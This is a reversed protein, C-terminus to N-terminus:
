CRSYSAAATSLRIVNSSSCINIAIANLAERHRDICIVTALFTATAAELEGWLELNMNVVTAATMAAMAMTGNGRWYVHPALATALRRRTPRVIANVVRFTINTNLRITIPAIIIHNVADAEAWREYSSRAAPLSGSAPRGRTALGKDVTMRGAKIGKASMRTGKRETVASAEATTKRIDDTPTDGNIICVIGTMAKGKRNRAAGLAEMAIFLTTIRIFVGTIIGMVSTNVQDRFSRTAAIVTDGATASQRAARRKM